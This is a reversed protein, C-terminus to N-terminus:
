SVSTDVYKQKCATNMGSSKSCLCYPLQSGSCTNLQSQMHTILDMSRWWEVSPPPTEKKQCQAKHKHILGLSVGRQCASLDNIERRIKTSSIETLLLPLRSRETWQSSVCSTMLKIWACFSWCIQRLHNTLVRTRRQTPTLANTPSPLPFLFFLFLSPLFFHLTHTAGSSRSHLVMVCVFCRSIFNELWPYM